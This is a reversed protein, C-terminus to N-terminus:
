GAGYLINESLNKEVVEWVDQLFEVKKLTGKLQTEKESNESNERQLEGKSTSHSITPSGSCVKVQM